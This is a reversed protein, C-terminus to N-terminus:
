NFAQWRVHVNVRWTTATQYGDDSYPRASITLHRDGATIKDDLPFLAKIEEAFDEAQGTYTGAETVVAVVLRGSLRHASALGLREPPAMIVQATCYPAVPEGAENGWIIPASLFDSLRERLANMIEKDTM